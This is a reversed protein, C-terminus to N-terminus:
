TQPPRDPQRLGTALSGIRCTGFHKCVFAEQSRDSAIVVELAREVMLRNVTRVIQKTPASKISEVLAKHESAVFLHHPGVPIGLHGDPRRLPVLIIPNDGAMLQRGASSVDIVAWTLNILYPGASPNSILDMVTRFMSREIAHKARQAEWEAFTPPDQPGRLEAYRQEAEPMAEANLEVLKALTASLHEPTRHMFALLFSAWTSREESTRPPAGTECMRQMVSAAASDLPGFFDIEIRQAAWDDSEGPIRYLDKSWGVAAPALRKSRVQGDQKAVYREIRGDPGAWLRHYCEPLYHHKQPPRPPKSTTMPTM